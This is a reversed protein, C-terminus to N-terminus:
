HDDSGAPASILARIEDAQDIPHFDEPHLAAYFERVEAEAEAAAGVRRAGPEKIGTKHLIFYGEQGPSFKPAMHWAIDRSGPFRIVLTKQDHTGKHVGHVEVVSEQWLPDHERPRLREIPGASEEPLRVSTVRGSVVLDAGEFHERVDRDKLNKVADGGPARFAPPTKEVAHHGESRVAISDGFLWGNTYFVLEDGVKAKQGASLEVTIDKGAHASLSEPAHIVENVRVVVTRDTVPVSSMTAAKLRRVTGKFIFRSRRVLDEERPIAPM